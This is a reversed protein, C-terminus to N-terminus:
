GHKSAPPKQGKARSPKADGDPAAEAARSSALELQAETVLDGIMASVPEAASRYLTIGSRLAAKAAPRLTRTVAPLLFPAILAAGLGVALGTPTPNEALDELLAM